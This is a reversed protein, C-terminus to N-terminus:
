SLDNVSEQEVISILNQFDEPLEVQWSMLAGSVPHTLELTRAHLAQRNFAKLAGELRESCGKPKRFRGLYQPDGVLPHKLWSMHVRIQHTRGTELKVDLLTFDRFKKNVRYHTIATRGNAVVAMLKRNIPHRAIPQDVTAGSIIPGYVLCVYHRGVTRQKLQEVLHAHAILTKAVVLLGTTDKDLRHVIGARPILELEPLHHLLGNVLTGQYNGAAPHVVMNAPKNVVLISEDEYVIDIPIAEAHWKNEVALEGNVVCDEGGFVKQKPSTVVVGDLTVFGSKLWKQLRSRSYESFSRAMAQDLRETASELELKAQLQVKNM